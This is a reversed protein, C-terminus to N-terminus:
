AQTEKNKIKEFPKAIIWALTMLTGFLFVNFLFIWSRFEKGELYDLSAFFLGSALFYLVINRPSQTIKFM